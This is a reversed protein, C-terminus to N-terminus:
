WTVLRAALVLGGAVAGALLSAPDRLAFVVPDDDLEDRGALFWVRGIWYLLVPAILYLIEAREYLRKVEPSNIYLCLVLVAAVGCAPGLSRVVDLDSRRYDRGPVRETTEQNLAVLEGYRKVFALGTFFFLSFALLWFSVEVKAAVGGALVRYTFLIALTIVDVLLLRKLALSYASSLAVYGFLMGTFGLPAALASLGLGTGLLGLGLFLGSGMSLAGSAIPRRRKSRHRRDADRDVIDNVVYVSSACLGFAVFAILLQGMLALDDYRHALIAPVFLLANKAWQHLRLVALM